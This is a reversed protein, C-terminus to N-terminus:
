VITNNWPRAFFNKQVLPYLIARMELRLAYLPTHRCFSREFWWSVAVNRDNDATNYLALEVWCSLLVRLDPPLTVLVSQASSSGHMALSLCAALFNYAVSALSRFSYTAEMSSTEQEKGRKCQMIKLLSDM